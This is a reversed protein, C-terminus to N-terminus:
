KPTIGSLLLFQDFVYMPLVEGLIWAVSAGWSCCLYRIKPNTSTAAHLMANAVEQPDRGYSSLASMKKLRELYEFGYSERVEPDTELWLKDLYHILTNQKTM